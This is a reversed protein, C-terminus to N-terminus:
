DPTRSALDLAYLWYRLGYNAPLEKEMRFGMSEYLTRAATMLESTHLGIVSAKDARARHICDQTLLRGLGKGRHNPHVALVRISAWDPPFFRPNSNGPPYYHVAALLAGDHESVLVRSKEARSAVQSLGERMTVWADPELAASFEQYAEITLAAIQKHEDPRAERVAIPSDSERDMLTIEERQRAEERRSAETRSEIVDPM